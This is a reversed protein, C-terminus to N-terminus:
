PLHANKLTKQCKISYLVWLFFVYQCYCYDDTGTEKGEDMWRGELVCENQEVKGFQSWGEMMGVDKSWGELFHVAM